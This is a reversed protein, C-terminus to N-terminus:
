LGRINIEKQEIKKMKKSYNKILSIIVGRKQM